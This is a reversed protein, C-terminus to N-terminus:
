KVEFPIRKETSLGSVNDKIKIALAYKGPVLDKVESKDGITLTQKLPLPQDIGTTDFKGTQWKIAVSGDQKLVEFNVEIDYKRPTSTQAAQQTPLSQLQAPAEEKTKAGLIMFFPEIKGNDEATIIGDFNPVVKLVSLMFFDRHATLRRDPAPLQDMSKLLFVPTTELANAYDRPAPLTFDFYSVGVKKADPRGSKPDIPTLLMAATYKGFPLQSINLSYWDEKQPDYGASDTQFTEAYSAERVSKLGGTEDPQFLELAMAMRTELVAAAPAEGEAPKNKPAPAAAAPAAYGLDANKARFFIVTQMLDAGPVPFWVAKFLSFPIDQRGQRSALGEQIIAKIPKPIIERPAQKPQPRRPEQQKAPAAQAFVTFLGLVFVLVAGIAVSKPATM